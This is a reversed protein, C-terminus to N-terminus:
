AQDSAADYHLWKWQKQCTSQFSHLVIKTKMFPEKPFVIFLIRLNPPVNLFIQYIWQLVGAAQVVLWSRCPDAAGHAVICMGLVQGYWKRMFQM